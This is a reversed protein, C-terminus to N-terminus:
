KTNVSPDFMISKLYSGIYSFWSFVLYRPPYLSYKSQTSCSQLSQISHRSHVLVWSVSLDYGCRHDKRFQEVIIMEKLGHHTQWLLIIGVQLCCYTLVVWFFFFVYPLCVFKCIQVHFLHQRQRMLNWSWSSNFTHESSKLRRYSLLIIYGKQFRRYFPPYIRRPAWVEVLHSTESDYNKAMGDLLM